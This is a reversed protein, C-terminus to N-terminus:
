SLLSELGDLLAQLGFEFPSDSAGKGSRQTEEILQRLHPFQMAIARFKETNEQILTDARKGSRRFERKLAAKGASALANGLAFTAVASAALLARAGSFGATQFIALNHDDHRARNPGYVAFTGFVQLLWPHRILMAHYDTAMKVAASRWDASTFEPLDLETWVQEGALAVLERKGKVHWYVASPASGLRKGLERINLGELGEDDLLEITRMVIEERTLTEAVM